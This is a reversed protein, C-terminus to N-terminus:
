SNFSGRDPSCDSVQKWLLKTLGFTGGGSTRVRLLGVLMTFLLAIDTFLMAILSLSSSESKM